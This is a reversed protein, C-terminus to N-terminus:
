ILISQIHLCLPLKTNDGLEWIIYNDPNNQTNMYCLKCNLKWNSKDTSLFLSFLIRFLSPAPLLLNQCLYRCLIHHRCPLLVINIQEEFCVRCLIKEQYFLVLDYWYRSTQCNFLFIVCPCRSFLFTYLLLTPKGDNSYM